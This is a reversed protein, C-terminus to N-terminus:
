EEINFINGGTFGVFQMYHNCVHEIATYVHEKGIRLELIRVLTLLSRSAQRKFKLVDKDELRYFEAMTMKLNEGMYDIFLPRLETDNKISNIKRASLKSKLEM